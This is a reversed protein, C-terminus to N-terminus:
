RSSLGIDNGEIQQAKGDDLQKETQLKRFHLRLSFKYKTRSLGFSKRRQNSGDFNRYDSAIGQINRGQRQLM